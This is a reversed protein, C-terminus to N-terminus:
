AHANRRYPTMGVLVAVAHIGDGRGTMLLAAAAGVTTTITKQNMLGPTAGFVTTTGTGIMGELDHHGRDTTETEAFPTHRGPVVAAVTTAIEKGATMEVHLPLLVVIMLALHGAVIVVSGSALIIVADNQLPLSM